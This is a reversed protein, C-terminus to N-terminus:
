TLPAPLLEPQPTYFAFLATGLFFLLASIPLYLLAGLWVSRVAAQDSKATIYRQVFSQDIGFNQLNMVLGYTLVVWFTPQALSVGFSGLSFKSDQAAIEFVQSPGEPMGFLLLVVCLVAGTTLVLSQMVDTWIVAEIGGMLTYVTVLVGTVAIIALVPWGTLPELALAVLYMITGMRALQSLLYCIVAYTRAWPGFRHELHNYASVEGSRRYFPVFFRVAIFAAIPLSLGFVFPNWNGGFSKGPNALFSISSVYTGFISLGVAWGPLSRGAAMFENTSRSKRVFWCGFGVIGALYVLLVAIDIGPLKGM